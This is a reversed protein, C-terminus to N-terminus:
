LETFGNKIAFKILEVTNKLGLKEMIHSKHSDVTRPSIFLKESIEINGMGQCVLTLVEEERKGLKGSGAVVSSNNTKKKYYNKFIAESVKSDFYEEGEYVRNIAKILVDKRVDKPLYGSVGYELAESIFEESIEMSMLIIKTEPATEKIKKLAEIGTMEPMMIDMLVVDPLHHEVRIIAELGNVAEAVININDEYRLMAHIGDRILGHDDAIVLQIKKM